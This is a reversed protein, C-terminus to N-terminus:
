KVSAEIMHLRTVEGRVMEMIPALAGVRSQWGREREREGPIRVEISEMKGVM